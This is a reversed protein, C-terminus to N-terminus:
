KFELPSGTFDFQENFRQYYKTGLGDTFVLGIGYCDETVTKGTLIADTNGTCWISCAMVAENGVASPDTYDAGTSSGTPYELMVYNGGWPDKGMSMYCKLSDNWYLDLTDELVENMYKILRKFGEQSGYTGGGKVIVYRDSVIGPNTICATTFADNYASIASSATTERAREQSSLVGGVAIISLIGLVIMVGLLEVLTMGRRRRLCIVRASAAEKKRM